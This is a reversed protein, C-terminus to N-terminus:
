CDDNAGKQKFRMCKERNSKPWFIAKPTGYAGGLSAYYSELDKPSPKRGDSGTAQLKKKLRGCMGAGQIPDTKSPEFM